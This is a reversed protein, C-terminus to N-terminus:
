FAINLLALILSALMYQQIWGKRSATNLVLLNPIWVKQSIPLYHLKDSYNARPIVEREM